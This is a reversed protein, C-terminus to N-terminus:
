ISPKTVKHVDILGIETGIERCKQCLEDVENQLHYMLDVKLRTRLIKRQVYIMYFNVEKLKEFKSIMFDSIEETILEYRKKKVVPAKKEGKKKPQKLWQADDLKKIQEKWIWRLFATKAARRLRNRKIATQLLIVASFYTNYLGRVNNMRM